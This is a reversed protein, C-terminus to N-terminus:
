VYNAVLDTDGICDVVQYGLSALASQIVAKVKEPKATIKSSNYKVSVAKGNITLNLSGKVGQVTTDLAAVVDAPLAGPAEYDQASNTDGRQFSTPQRVNERTFSTPQRVTSTDWYGTMDQGYPITAKPDKPAPKPAPAPVPAPPAVPKPAVPKPAPKPSLGSQDKYDGISGDLPDGTAAQALKNILLQQKKIIGAMKQILKDNKDTM